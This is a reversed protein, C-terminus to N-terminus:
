DQSYEDRVYIPQDEVEPTEASVGLPGISPNRVYDGKLADVHSKAVADHNWRMSKCRACRRPLAGSESIWAKRCENGDKLLEDCRCVLVGFARQYSMDWYYVLGTDWHHM